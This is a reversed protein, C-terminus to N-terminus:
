NSLPLCGPLDSLFFFTLMTFLSAKHDSELCLFPPFFHFLYTCFMSLHSSNMSIKEYDKPFLNWLKIYSWKIIQLKKLSSVEAENDMAM